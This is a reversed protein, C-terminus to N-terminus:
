ARTESLPRVEHLKLIHNIADVQVGNQKAIEAALKELTKGKRSRDKAARKEEHKKVEAKGERSELYAAIKEPTPRTATLMIGIDAFRNLTQIANDPHMPGIRKGAKTWLSVKVHDSIEGVVIENAQNRGKQRIARMENALSGGLNQTMSEQEALKERLAINEQELQALKSESLKAM